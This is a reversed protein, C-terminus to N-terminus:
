IAFVKNKKGNILKQLEKVCSDLEQEADKENEKTIIIEGPGFKAQNIIIPIKVHLIEAIFEILFPYTNNNIYIFTITGNSEMAEKNVPFAFDESVISDILSIATNKLNSEKKDKKLKTYEKALKELKDLDVM